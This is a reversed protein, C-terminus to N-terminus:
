GGQQGEPWFFFRTYLYAVTEDIVTRVGKSTKWWAKPDYEQSELAIIGVEVNDGLAKEFLLRTRRAHPGMSCINLAKVSLGSQLLWKKLAVASAYTSDKRVDPGPVAALLEEDFGLHKLTAFVLEATTKYEALYFGKSLLGGTTVLLRYDNFKFEKIADEIAYDPLWGEVVLIDGRVPENVGLFPHVTVVIIGLLVSVAIIVALWGRVTLGWREKRKILGLYPM